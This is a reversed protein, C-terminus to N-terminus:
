EFTIQVVEAQSGLRLPPGWTGVGSSVYFQTEGLRALGYTFRGYIRRTIWSFPFFQGRHTHGSLQLGIGAEATIAPRDPAHTLLISARSPDIALKALVSRFHEAHTAHIYPVGLLQLGDIAVNENELVRIGAAAVSEAFYSDGRFLEHNGTVFFTGSPARLFRFPALVNRADISTGDFLDGALFVADPRLAAIKRVIRAAFGHHHVHGLHLDSALVATRGRWSDPLNPLQVRIRRTRVWNANVVAWVSAIAAAGFFLIVIWRNPIPFGGALIIGYALWSGVSAIVLFNLAGLWVAAVRYLVRLPANNYRFALLTAALFSFCLLTTGIAVAGHLQSNAPQWLTQWTEYVFVHAAVLIGQFVAAIGAFGAHARKGTREATGRNIAQKEALPNATSM